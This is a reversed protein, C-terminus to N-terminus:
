NLTALEKRAENNKNRAQHAKVGCYVTAIVGAVTAFTSVTINGRINELIKSSYLAPWCKNNEVSSLVLKKIPENVNHIFMCALGHTDDIHSVLKGSTIADQIAEKLESFHDKFIASWKAYDTINMDLALSNLFTYSASFLIAIVHHTEVTSNRQIEVELANKRADNDVATTMGATVLGAILLLSLSKKFNM